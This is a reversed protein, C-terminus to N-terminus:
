GEKIEFEKSLIDGISFEDVTLESDGIVEGNTNWRYYGEGHGIHDRMYINRVAEGKNEVVITMPPTRYDEGSEEDQFDFASVTKKYTPSKGGFYYVKFTKTEMGDIKTSVVEAKSIISRPNKVIDPM